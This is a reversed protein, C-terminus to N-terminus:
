YAMYAHTRMVTLIGYIHTRAYRDAPLVYTHIGTLIGYTARTTCCIMLLESKSWSIMGGIKSWSMMGGNKVIIDNGWNKVMIDNRWKKVMVDNRWKKVM